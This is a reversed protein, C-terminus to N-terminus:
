RSNKAGYIGGEEIWAKVGNTCMEGVREWEGKKAAERILTSSIGTATDVDGGELISIQNIAWETKLGEKELSGHRLSTLFLRQTQDTEHPDPFPSNPNSPDPSPSSSPRLLVLLKHGAEFFPGLASLPPTHTPYYKPALLRTLTDYGLLHIHTLSAANPYAPPNATTIALSKDTYYPAKTLGIDITIEEEEEKEEEEEINLEQECEEKDEKDEDENEGKRQRERKKKKHGLDLVGMLDEAFLGMMAIREVFGAPKGAAKDANRTSFLLLLRWPRPETSTKLATTALALHARSPPNFSSDLIFLTRPAAGLVTPPSNSIAHATPPSAQPNSPTISRIIQFTATSSQFTKLSAELTPLLSRTQSIRSAMAKESM